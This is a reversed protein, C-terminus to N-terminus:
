LLKCGLQFVQIPDGPDLHHFSLVVESLQGRMEVHTYARGWIFSSIYYFFIVKREMFM